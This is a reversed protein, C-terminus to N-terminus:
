KLRELAEALKNLGAAATKGGSAQALARLGAAIQDIEAATLVDGLSKGSPGTATSVITDATSPVGIPHVVPQAAPAVTAPTPQSAPPNVPVAAPIGLVPVVAGGYDASVPELAIEYVNFDASNGGYVSRGMFAIDVQMPAAAQFVFLNEEIEKYRGKGTIQWDQEVKGGAGSISFRWTVATLDVHQGGPFNIDPKFVAKALYRQGVTLAIGRQMYGGEWARYGAAIVFGRDRHLSQPLKEPDSERPFAIFEWDNPHEITGVQGQQETFYRGLRFGALTPNKLLNVMITEGETHL